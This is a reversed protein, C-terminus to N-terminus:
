ELAAPAPVPVLGHAARVAGYGTNSPSILAMDVGLARVGIYAKVVDVLADVLIMAM